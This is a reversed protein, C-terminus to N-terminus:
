KHESMMIDLSQSNLIIGSPMWNGASIRTTTRIMLKKAEAAIQKPGNMEDRTRTTM